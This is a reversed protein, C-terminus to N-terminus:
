VLQRWLCWLFNKIPWLGLPFYPGVNEPPIPPHIWTNPPPPAGGGGTTGLASSGQTQGLGGQRRRNDM